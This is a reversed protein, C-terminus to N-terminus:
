SIQNIQDSLMYLKNLSGIGIAYFKVYQKLTTMESNKKWFELCGYQQIYARLEEKQRLLNLKEFLQQREESYEILKNPLAEQLQIQAAGGLSLGGRGFGKNSKRDQKEETAPAEFECLQIFEKKLLCIKENAENNFTENKIKTKLKELFDRYAKGVVLYFPGEKVISLASQYYRLAQLDEKWRDLNLCKLDELDALGREKFIGPSGGVYKEAETEKAFGLFKFYGMLDEIQPSVEIQKLSQDITELCNKKLVEQEKKLDGLLEKLREYFKSPTKPQNFKEVLPNEGAFGKLRELWGKIERFRMAWDDKTDSLNWEKEDMEHLLTDIQREFNSILIVNQDKFFQEAKVVPSSAVVESTDSNVRVGLNESAEGSSHGTDIVNGEKKEQGELVEKDSNVGVELVGAGRDAPGTPKVDDEEKGAGWFIQSVVWDVLAVIQALVPVYWELSGVVYRVMRTGWRAEQVKAAAFHEDARVYAQNWLGRIGELSAM